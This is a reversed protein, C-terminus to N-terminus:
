SRPASRVKKLYWDWVNLFAELSQPQSLRSIRVTPWGEMSQEDFQLQAATNLRQRLEDRQPKGSFPPLGISVFQVALGGGTYLVFTNCVAGDIDLKPGASGEKAGKGWQIRLGREQAWTFVKRAVEADSRSRLELESLFSPEDWLKKATTPQKSEQARVTQGLVRPVLTRKGGGLFQRVELAIVSAPDMQENLFEVIRLLERPIEDAVFVLRVRGAQLNTKVQTWFDEPEADEGLFEALVVTPDVGIAQHQQDFVARIKEMSWYLTGNAAYDLMQGVVERRIQNNSARKVEILTPIGDQDVFLHDLAWHAGGGEENPVGIERRLLLWRRPDDPNVQEGALLDPHDALLKQLLAEAEYPAEIMPVLTEDSDIFFIRGAM